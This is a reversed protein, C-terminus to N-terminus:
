QPAITIISQGAVIDTGVNADISAVRGTCDIRVDHKAKMAEVAAVVQGPRVVDGVRVRIEVLEVKGKFPSYVKIASASGSPLAAGAAQGGAVSATAAAPPPVPHQSGGQPELTVTFHRAVGNEVVTCTTSIPGALAAAATATVSTSVAPQPVDKKKLPLVIKCQGSLFRIGENLSVDKGPVLASAVLFVNEDTDTLGRSKLADRATALSDPAAQLPDGTFPERGLQEAAIKV